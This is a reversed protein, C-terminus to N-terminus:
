PMGSMSMQNSGQFGSPLHNTDRNPLLQSTESAELKRGKKRASLFASLKAHCDRCLASSVVWHQQCGSCMRSGFLFSHLLRLM